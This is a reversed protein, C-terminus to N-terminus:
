RSVNLEGIYSTMQEDIVHPRRVELKFVKVGLNRLPLIDSSLYDNSYKQYKFIEEKYNTPIMRKMTDFADICYIHVESFHDYHKKIFEINGRLGPGQNLPTIFVLASGKEIYELKKALLEDGDDEVPDLYCMKLEMLEFHKKGSGQEIHFQNSFVEVFHNKDIDKKALALCLDRCYEWTSNVGKGQHIKKDFNLIYNIKLNVANEYENIVLENLKGSLKWNIFKMPDGFQYHRLGYFNPSIGKKHIEFDGSLYTEDNNSLSNPLVEQILPYVLIKKKLKTKVTFKFIGLSDRFVLDVSEFFHEGFGENLPYKVKITKKSKGKFETRVTRNSFNESTGSFHDSLYFDKFSFPSENRITYHAVLDENEKANDAVKRSVYVSRAIIFIKLYNILLYSILTIPYVFLKNEMFGFLVLLVIFCLLATLKNFNQVEYHFFAEKGEFLNSLSFYDKIKPKELNRM